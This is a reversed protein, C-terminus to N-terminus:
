VANAFVVLRHSADGNGYITGYCTMISVDYGNAEYEVAKTLSKSGNLLGSELSKEYVVKDMVQYSQTVGGETITFIEGYELYNLNGFLGSSNHAYIFKGTRYIDYYSPYAVIEGTVATVTYNTPYFVPNSYSALYEVSSDNSSEIFDNEVKNKEIITEVASFGPKKVDVTDTASLFSVGFVLGIINSMLLLFLGKAM